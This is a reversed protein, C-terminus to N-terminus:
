ARLLTENTRLLPKLLAYAQPMQRLISQSTSRRSSNFFETEIVDVKTRKVDAVPQASPDLGLSMRYAIECQANKHATKVTYAYDHDALWSLGAMFDFARILLPEKTASISYGRDSLYTDLEAETAYTNADTTPAGLEVILAM